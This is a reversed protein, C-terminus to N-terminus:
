NSTRSQYSVPFIQFSLLTTKPVKIVEGSKAHVSYSLFRIEGSFTPPFLNPTANKGPVYVNLFLCDENQTKDGYPFSEPRVCTHGHETANREVPTWSEVPEPAKIM